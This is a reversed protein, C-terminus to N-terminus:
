FPAASRGPCQQVALEWANNLRGYDLNRGQAIFRNREDGIVYIQTPQYSNGLQYTGVDPRVGFGNADFMRIDMNQLSEPSNARYETVVCAHAGNDGSIWFSQRNGDVNATSTYNLVQELVSKQRASYAMWRREIELRLREAETEDRAEQAQQRQREAEAIEINRRILAAQDAESYDQSVGRNNVYMVGLLRRASVDGQNAALRLWRLAELDNQDVSQGRYFAIGLDLQACKDGAEARQRLQEVNVQANEDLEPCTAGQAMASNSISAAIFLMLFSLIYRM